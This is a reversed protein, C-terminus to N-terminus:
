LCGLSNEKSRYLCGPRPTGVASRQYGALNRWAPNFDMTQTDIDWSAIAFISGRDGTMVEIKTWDAPYDLAFGVSNDRYTTMGGSTRPIEQTSWDTGLFVVLDVQSTPDYKLEYYGPLLNFLESLFNVTHPNGTYDVVKTNNTLEGNSIEVVNAGLTQLYAQTRSALGETQSSNLLTIM